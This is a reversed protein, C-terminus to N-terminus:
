GVFPEYGMRDMKELYIGGVVGFALIVMLITAAFRKFDRWLLEGKTFAEKPVETAPGGEEGIATDEGPVGIVRAWEYHRTRGDQTIDVTVNFSPETVSTVWELKWTADGENVTFGNIKIDYHFPKTTDKAYMVVSFNYFLKTFLSPGDRYGDADVRMIRVDRRFWTEIWADAEPGVPATGTGTTPQRPASSGSGTNPTSSDPVSPTTNNSQAPRSPPVYPQPPADRLGSTENTSTENGDGQGVVTSVTLTLMLVLISLLSARSM